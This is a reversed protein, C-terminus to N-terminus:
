YLLQGISFILLYFKVVVSDNDQCSLFPDVFLVQFGSAFSLMEVGLIVWNVHGGSFFFLSLTRSANAILIPDYFFTSSANLSPIVQFSAFLKLMVFCVQM